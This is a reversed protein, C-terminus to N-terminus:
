QIPVNTREFRKPDTVKPVNVNPSFWSPTAREFGVGIYCCMRHDSCMNGIMEMNCKPCYRM